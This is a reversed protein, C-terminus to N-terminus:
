IVCRYTLVFNHLNHNVNAQNSYVEGTMAALCGRRSCDIEAAESSAPLSHPRGNCMREAVCAIVIIVDVVKM